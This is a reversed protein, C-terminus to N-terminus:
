EVSRVISISHTPYNIHFYPSMCHMRANKHGEDISDNKHVCYIHTSYIILNQPTKSHLHGYENSIITQRLVTYAMHVHFSNNTM